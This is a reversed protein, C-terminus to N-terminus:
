QICTYLVVGVHSSTPLSLAKHPNVSICMRPFEYTFIVSKHLNVSIFRRPFAYTCNCPNVSVWKRPFEIPVSRVLGSLGSLCVCMLDKRDESKDSGKELV